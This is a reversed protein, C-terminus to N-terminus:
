SELVTRLVTENCDLEVLRMKTIGTFGHIEATVEEMAWGKDAYCRVKCARCRYWGDPQSPEWEHSKAVWAFTDPAPM